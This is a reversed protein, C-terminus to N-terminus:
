DCVVSLTMEPWTNPVDLWALYADYNANFTNDKAMIYFKYDGIVDPTTIYIYSQYVNSMYFGKNSDVIAPETCGSAFGRCADTNTSLM